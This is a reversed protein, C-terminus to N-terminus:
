VLALLPYNGLLVTVFTFGAAVANATASASEAGFREELNIIWHKM